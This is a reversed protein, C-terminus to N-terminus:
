FAIYKRLENRLKADGDNADSDAACGNPSACAIGRASGGIISSLEIMHRLARTSAVGGSPTARRVDRAAFSM